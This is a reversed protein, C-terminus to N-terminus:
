SVRRAQAKVRDLDAGQLWVTRELRAVVQELHALERRLSQVQYELDRCRHCTTTM